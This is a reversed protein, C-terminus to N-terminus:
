FWKSFKASLLILYKRSFKSSDRKLSVQNYGSHCKLFSMQSSKNTEEFLLHQFLPFSWNPTQNFTAWAKWQITQIQSGIVQQFDAWSNITPAVAHQTGCVGRERLNLCSYVEGWKEQELAQSMGGSVLLPSPYPVHNICSSANLFHEWEQEQKRGWQASTCLSTASFPEGMLVSHWWWVKPQQHQTHPTILDRGGGWSGM